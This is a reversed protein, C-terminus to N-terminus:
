TSKRTQSMEEKKEKKSVGGVSQVLSSSIKWDLFSALFIEFFIQDFITAFELSPLSWALYFHSAEEKKQMM